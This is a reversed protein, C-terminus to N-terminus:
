DAQRLRKRYFLADSGDDLYEPLEGVLKYGARVYLACAPAFIPHDYTEVFMERFGRSLAISEMLSLGLSALGQRRYNPHVALYGLWTKRSSISCGIGAISILTDRDFLGWLDSESSDDCAAFEEEAKAGVLEGMCSYILPVALERSQRLSLEIM